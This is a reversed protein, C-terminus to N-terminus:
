LRQYLRSLVISYYITKKKLFRVRCLPFRVIGRREEHLNIIPEATNYYRHPYSVNNNLEFEIVVIGGNRPREEELRREGGGGCTDLRTRGAMLVLREASV